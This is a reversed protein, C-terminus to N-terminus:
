AELVLTELVIQFTRSVGDLNQVTVPCSATPPAEVSSVTIKDTKYSLNDFNSAGQFLVTGPEPQVTATRGFDDTQSAISDYIFIRCPGNTSVRLLTFSKAMPYTAALKGGAAITATNLMFTQRTAGGGSERPLWASGDWSYYVGVDVVFQELGVYPDLFQWASGDWVTIRSTQGAWAGTAGAPVIYKDGQAPAAPPATTTASLAPVQLLTNLEAVGQSLESLADAQSPTSPPAPAPPAQWLTEGGTSWISAESLGFVDEVCDVDITGETLTGFRVRLVRLVLGEVELEPWTFRLLSSPRLTNGKRNLKLTAKALPYSLTTLDRAAIRAALDESPIGPYSVDSTVVRGQIQVNALDQAIAIRGKFRSSTNDTYSVKVSNTTEQWAGRSFSGLAIINSEDFVPLTSLDYGGRALRLVGLGTSPETYYVGDIHRLFESLLQDINQAAEWKFSLGLGESHLQQAAALFAAADLSAAPLGRGWIPDTLAEWIMEAPNASWIGGTNIRAYSEGGPINAPCREVAFKWPKPFAQTGIYGNGSPGGPDAAASHGEWVLHCFGRYGPVNDAGLQGQLYSDATQTRDGPYIRLYGLLGGEKEEGGFLLTNDIKVRGSNVPSNYSSWATKEDLRIERIADVPGHCLCFNFGIFYRYGKTFTTTQTFIFGSSVSGLIPEAYYDGYWIVNPSELLVTGWVVPIKRDASATPINLQDLSAAPNDSGQLKPRLLDGLITSLFFLGLTLWFSM